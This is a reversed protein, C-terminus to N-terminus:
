DSDLVVYSSYDFVYDNDDAVLNDYNTEWAAREDKFEPFMERTLKWVTESKDGTLVLEAETMEYSEIKRYSMDHGVFDLM